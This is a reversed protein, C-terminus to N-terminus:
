NGKEQGDLEGTGDRIQKQRGVSASFLQTSGVYGKYGVAAVREQFDDSGFM